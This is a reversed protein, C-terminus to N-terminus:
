VCFNRYIDSIFSKFEDLTMNNKAWNVNRDCIVFNDISNTGGKSIPIIHDLSANIGILLPRKSYYCLYNQKQMMKKLDNSFSNTKLHKKSMHKYWCNECHVSNNVSLCKGCKTCLKQEKWRKHQINRYNQHKDLCQRCFGYKWNESFQVNCRPCHNNILRNYKTELSVKRQKERCLDCNIYKIDRVDNGCRTCKKNNKLNQRRKNEQNHCNDCNLRGSIIPNKGCGTCINALKREQYIEAIPM